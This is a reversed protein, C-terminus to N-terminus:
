VVPRTRTATREGFIASGVRVLTAGADVAVELDDTMGISRVPLGLADAMAVLAAFGPRALEPDGAPGVGMLGLVDLGLDQAAAVLAPGDAMAAGGKQEEGSLNLQILVRAGPARKAVESIVSPRDLSQWVSVVPALARVKNTQLRGLFHWEVVAREADTLEDHKALLEQAYNEGLATTGAALAARPADVGFGKTVAVLEVERGDACADIRARVRAIREAIPSSEIM